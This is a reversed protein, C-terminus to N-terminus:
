IFMTSNGEDQDTDLQLLDLGKYLELGNILPPLTSNGTKALTLNFKGDSSIARSNSMSFPQGNCYINFVRSQSAELKHIEASHIYVYIQAINKDVSWDITLLQSEDAPVAATKAVLQPVDYLSSTNVFLDTSISKM